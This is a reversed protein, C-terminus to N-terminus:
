IYVLYLSSIFSQIRSSNESDEKKENLLTVTVSCWWTTWLKIMDAYSRIEWKTITIYVNSVYYLTPGGFTILQNVFAGTVLENYTGYAM